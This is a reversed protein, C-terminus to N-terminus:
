WIELKFNRCTRILEFDRRNSTILTAGHTRASLAILVDFHLDRLKAPLFGKGAWLSALLEGSEMWNKETPTLMPRSAALERVFRREAASTAGRGLEAMVVSSNRIRGPWNAIRESHCGTRLDAILISTDFLVIENM